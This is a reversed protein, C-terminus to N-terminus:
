FDDEPCPWGRGRVLWWGSLGRYRRPPPWSGTVALVAAERVRSALRAAPAFLVTPVFAVLMMRQAIVDRVQGPPVKFTAAAESRVVDNFGLDHWARAAAVNRYHLVAGAFLYTAACAGFILWWGILLDM